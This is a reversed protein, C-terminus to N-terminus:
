DLSKLFDRVASIYPATNEAWPIHSANPIIAVHADPILHSAAVMTEPRAEDYQGCVLLTKATINKLDKWRDYSQLTGTSVFESEGWMAVYLANNSKQRSLELPEPRPNLRCVHRAYFLEEAADYAAKDVPKGKIGAMLLAKEAPPMEALLTNADALWKQTSLLPSSLVLGLTRGPYTLAFDTVVSGGWSQGLIITGDDYGFHSQVAALEDVFRPLQMLEPTIPAPSRASGLQDYFIVPRDNALVSVYHAMGDHTSGPGGHVCVLPLRNKAADDHPTLLRAGVVGGPAALDHFSETYRPVVPSATSM